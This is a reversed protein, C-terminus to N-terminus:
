SNNQWTAQGSSSSCLFSCSMYLVHVNVHIQGSKFAAQTLCHSGRLRKISHAKGWDTNCLSLTQVPICSPPKHIKSKWPSLLDYMRLSALAKSLITSTNTIPPPSMPPIRSFFGAITHFSPLFYSFKPFITCFQM